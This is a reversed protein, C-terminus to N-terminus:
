HSRVVGRQCLFVCFRGAAADAEGDRGAKPVAQALEDFVSTSGGTCEDTGMQDFFSALEALLGFVPHAVRNKRSSASRLREALEQGGLKRLRQVADAVGVACWRTRMAATACKFAIM